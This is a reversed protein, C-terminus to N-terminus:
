VKSYLYSSFYEQKQIANQQAHFKHLQDKTILCEPRVLWRIIVIVSVTVPSSGQVQIKAQTESLNHYFSWSTFCTLICIYTFPVRKWLSQYFWTFTVVCAMCSCRNTSLPHISYSLTNSGRQLWIPALHCLLHSILTQFLKKAMDKFM